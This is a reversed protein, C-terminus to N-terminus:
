TFVAQIGAVAQSHPAAETSAEQMAVVMAEALGAPAVRLDVQTAALDAAAWTVAATSDVAAVWTVAVAAAWTAAAVAEM